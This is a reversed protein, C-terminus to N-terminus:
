TGENFYAINELTLKCFDGGVEFVWFVFAAFFGAFEEFYEDEPTHIGVESEELDVDAVVM